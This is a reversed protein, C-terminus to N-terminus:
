KMEGFDFSRMFNWRVFADFTWIGNIKKELWRCNIQYVIKIRRIRSELNQIHKQILGFSEFFNLM